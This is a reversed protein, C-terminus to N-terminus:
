RHVRETLARELPWKYVILRYYLTDRTMGYHKAWDSLKKTVGNFTIPIGRNRGVPKTAHELTSGRTMRSHVTGRNLGYADAVATHTPYAGIPRNNRKNRAQELRTAWRCNQPSYPGDNDIRDISTKSSPRPGMDQFFAQFDDRWRDCVIIGRGGYDRYKANNPQYCRSKIASWTEYERSHKMGHKFM